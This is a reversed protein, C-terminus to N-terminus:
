LILTEEDKPVWAFFPKGNKSQKVAKEYIQKLNKGHAVVKSNELAVWEGSYGRMDSRSYFQMEASM